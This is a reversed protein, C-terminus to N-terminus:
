DLNKTCSGLEYLALWNEVLQDINYNRLVHAQGQKGMELCAAKPMEMMQQMATALAAEDRAPVLLGTVGDLVAEANGGVRTAVIPLAAAGAELLVMPLGEWASSMVYSDTARMLKPVDDRLGLFQIRKAAPLATALTHIESKLSGDGVVLLRPTREECVPLRAFARILNPWDKAEELRGVALWIFDNALMLTLRTEERDDPPKVSLNLGNAVHLIKASPVIGAEIYRAAGAASVQTNLDCLSDTLRLLRELIRGGEHTNHATCILRPMPALLRTIRALINAHIIHSHVVDPQIRRVLRAFKLIARPDPVSPRMHLSHVPVGIAALDDVFAEPTCMSVVTVQHGRDRLSRCLRVLHTEAGGYNLSNIFQLINM